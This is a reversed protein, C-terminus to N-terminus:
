CRIWSVVWMMMRLMSLMSVMGDGDDDDDDGDGCGVAIDPSGGSGQNIILVGKWTSKERTARKQRGVHVSGSHYHKAIYHWRSYVASTLKQTSPVSIIFEVSNLQRDHM